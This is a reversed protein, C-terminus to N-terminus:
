GRKQNSENRTGPQLQEQEDENRTEKTGPREQGHYREDRAVGMRDNQWEREQDSDNKTATTGPRRQELDGEIRTVKTELWARGQKKEKRIVRM